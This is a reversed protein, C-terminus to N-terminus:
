TTSLRTESRTGADFFMMTWAHNNLDHRLIYVGDDDGRIKFYSYTPEFWRDVIEEVNVEREGIYFSLPSEEARYGAYCKVRINSTEAM